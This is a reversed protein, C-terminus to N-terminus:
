AATRSPSCSHRPRSECGPKAQRSPAPSVFVRRTEVHLFVLVFVDRLGKPTLVKKSFFDCQWLTAAHIKLFNDWTGKGRAPGPDLGNEKLIAKVTNRSVSTIGLKRLEGLIRTYGWENEKALKIILKRIDEATRRRGRKVPAKKAGSKKSERFWRRLTDPHVLTVSKDMAQRGLKAGFRILRNREQSTVTVRRPLKGRVIELEVTLYQIQAALEKQTAGAILMLLAHYPNKMALIIRYIRPFDARDLKQVGTLRRRDCRELTIAPQRAGLRKKARQASPRFRGLIANRNVPHAGNGCLTPETRYAGSLM